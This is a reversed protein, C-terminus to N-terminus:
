KPPDQVLFGACSLFFLRKLGDSVSRLAFDSGNALQHSRLLMILALFAGDVFDVQGMDICVDRRSAAVWAFARRLPALNERTWAGSLRILAADEETEVVVRAATLRTDSPWRWRMVLALPLVRTCLLWLFTLGDQFYRQWLGPEERIRWLWELGLNQLWRPARRIEGGVFNVVAGLHSIVPITLRDRNHMIWAQGKRAGLSVALLDAGSANIRDVIEKTSMEEIPGFGPSESGVCRLGGSESNLRKCARNAVGDPGGFFFVSLPRDGRARLVEFLTAGAVRERVPIRLLRSVWVLPAGDAISLDSRIVSERFDTDSLCGILFNLNPTSLLCRSRKTAASRVTDEAGALDVADFPLGLICHVDRHFDPANSRTDGGVLGSRARGGLASAAFEAGTPANM